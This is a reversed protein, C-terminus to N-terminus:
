IGEEMSELIAREIILFLRPLDEMHKWVSNTDVGNQAINTLAKSARYRSITVIRHSRCGGEEAVWILYKQPVHIDDTM